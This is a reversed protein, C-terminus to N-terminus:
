LVPFDDNPVAADEVHSLRALRAITLEDYLSLPSRNSNEIRGIVIGGSWEWEVNLPNHDVLQHM